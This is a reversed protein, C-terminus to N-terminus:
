LFPQVPEVTYRGLHGSADFFFTIELRTNDGENWATAPLVLGKPYPRADSTGMYGHTFAASALVADAEPVSLHHAHAFAAVAPSHLFAQTRRVTAHVPVQERILTRLDSAAQNIQNWQLSLLLLVIAIAAGALAALVLIFAVVVKGVALIAYIM